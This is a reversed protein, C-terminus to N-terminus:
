PHRTLFWMRMLLCSTTVSLKKCSGVWLSTVLSQPVLSENETTDIFLQIGERILHLQLNIIGIMYRELCLGGYCPTSLFLRIPRKEEGSM